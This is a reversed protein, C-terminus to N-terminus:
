LPAPWTKCRSPSLRLEVRFLIEALLKSLVLRAHKFPLVIQPQCFTQSPGTLTNAPITNTYTAPISSTVQATIQCTGPTTINGAPIVGGALTISNATASITGGCQPSAPTGSITLNAPLSDVLGEGTYDAGTPNRLTITLLSTDGKQITKLILLKPLGLQKFMLIPLLRPLTPLGRNPKFHVPEALVPRSPIPTNVRPQHFL